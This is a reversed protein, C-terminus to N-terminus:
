ELQCLRRANRHVNALVVIRNCPTFARPQPSQPCDVLHPDGALAALCDFAAGHLSGILAKPLAGNLYYEPWHLHFIDYREVVSGLREGSRSVTSRLVSSRAHRSVVIGRLSQRLPPHRPSFCTNAHWDKLEFCGISRKGGCTRTVRGAGATRARRALVFAATGISFMLLADSAISSWAAGRWSYAPIIWLNILM